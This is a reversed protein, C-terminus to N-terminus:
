EWGENQTLNPNMEREQGPIPWLRHRSQYGRTVLNDGVVSKEIFGTSVDELQGWRKLDFYRLGEAALEVKREHSIRAEMETKSTVALFAPGSNLAPMDVRTRVKNLETVAKALQGDENYAESLMLLVDALRILPFNIPTHARNTLAGNLDGEPVFKRWLYTMWGRNNRIQGFNENVGTALVLQMMREANANWGLYYSYPVILTHNMRPDRNEYIQRLLATDPVHTFAGNTHTAIMAERKVADNQTYNPIYDDWNFPSGDKNEYSDALRTSPLVNNWASGFTSRTGMYFAMPMGYSFGTGGLNQIAFIMEDSQDGEMTFVSAYDNALVYGYNNNRNYVIEEFDQIANQWQSAYLYLKGRLAYAAGKTVRGYHQPEYSVPLNEIAFGLDALIFARVDDLSARENQLSAFDRNLDVSEDYLPLEGYLNTLQFYMLARLFRLEAIFTGKVQADIGMNQIQAIAHNSRQILDYGSKWRNVILGTRDTFTGSIVEGLGPPDYGLGADTLCDYSFQLGFTNEKKLDNYVGMVGAFAHEETQWFANASVQSYPVTDLKYCSTLSLIGATLLVISQKKM